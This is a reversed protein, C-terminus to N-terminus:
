DRLVLLTIATWTPHLRNYPDGEFDEKTGWSGDPNQLSMVYSEGESIFQVGRPAFQRFCYLYECLLDLDRTRNRVVDYNKTLYFYIRDTAASPKLAEQGYHNLALLVHTAYYNQDHYGSDNYKHVFPIDACEAMITKYHDPPLRFDKDAKWRYAMNKFATDVILDTLSDFDRERAAKRFEELRDPPKVHAFQREAFQKLPGIPVQHHYATALISVFNEYGDVDAPFLEPLRPVAREFEKLIASHVIGHLERQPSHLTLEDLMTMYNTFTFNFNGDDDCFVLCWRLGRLVARDRADIKGNSLVRDIEMVAAKNYKLNAIDPKAAEGACGLATFLYIIALLLPFRSRIRSVM